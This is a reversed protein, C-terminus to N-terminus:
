ARSRERLARTADADVRNDRIVVGYIDQAAQLSVYGEIVDELVLAPDREM